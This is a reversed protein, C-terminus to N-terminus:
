DAARRMLAALARVRGGVGQVRSLLLHGDSAADARAPTITAGDRLLAAILRSTARTTQTAWRMRTEGSWLWGQGHTCGAERAARLQEATEIGEMVVVPAFDRAEAILAALQAEGDTHLLLDLGSRDIKIIDWAIAIGSLYISRAYGAGFDDIALRCGLAQAEGLRRAVDDITNLPGSETIELVLRNALAPRRALRRLLRQWLGVDALTQVSLNCGLTLRPEVSLTEYALGVMARDLLGFEDDGTLRGMLAGARLVRTEPVEMRLLCEGYLSKSGPQWLDIIAEQAFGIRTGAPVSESATAGSLHSALLNM